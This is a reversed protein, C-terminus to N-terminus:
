RRKLSVLLIFRFWISCNLKEMMFYFGFKGLSMLSTKKKKPLPRQVRCAYFKIRENIEILIGDISGTVNVKCYGLHAYCGLLKLLM